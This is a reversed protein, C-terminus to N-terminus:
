STNTVFNHSQVLLPHGSMATLQLFYFSLFFLQLLLHFSFIPPFSSFTAHSLTYPIFVFLLSLQTLFVAKGQPLCLFFSRNDQTKKKVSLLPWAKGCPKFLGSLPASHIMKSDFPILFSCLLSASSQLNHIIQFTM